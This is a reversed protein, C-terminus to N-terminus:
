DPLVQGFVRRFNGWAIGKVSEETYNMKLLADFIKYTSEAGDIGGPLRDIGDFDSGIGINETGRLGAFHEIHRIISDIDESGGLFATCFNIGAVGGKEALSIFMDDTLNRSHRCLTRSDSHSAIVPKKSYELVNWFGKDSIHSVDAMIGLRNMEALARIGFPTLGGNKRSVLNTDSIDNPTNWTLTILRVGADYLSRLREFSGDGDICEGGEIGLLFGIRSREKGGALPEKFPDADKFFAELDRKTRIQAAEFRGESMGAKNRIIGLQSYFLDTYKKVRETVNHSGKDVWIDAVQLYRPYCLMKSANLHAPANFLDYNDGGLATITDCHADFVSFPTLINPLTIDNM